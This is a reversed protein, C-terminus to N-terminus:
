KVYPYDHIMDEKFVQWSLAEEEALMKTRMFVNNGMALTYADYGFLDLYAVVFASSHGTGCYVAVPRDSPISSMESVIGLTGNPKYRVAGPLHGSEYKDRRDYNMIYYQSDDAIVDPPSVKNVAFGEQFLKKVRNILIVEGDIFGTGPGPFAVPDAKENNKTELLTEFNFTEAPLWPNLNHIDKNWVAMGWRLGYVNGYGLLRLLATAYSSSQGHNCVIVIKEYKYAQIEDEFYTPLDSFSVNVAGEIHGKKFLEKNRIDIVLTNEGLSEYLTHAKIMSPFERSNVYDGMEVLYDLLLRTEPDPTIMEKEVVESVNRDKETSKAEGSNNCASLGALLVIGALLLNNFSKM